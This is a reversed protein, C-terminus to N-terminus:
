GLDVVIAASKAGVALPQDFSLDHGVKAQTNRVSVPLDSLQRIDDVSARVAAMGGPGRRVLVIVLQAALPVATPFSPM